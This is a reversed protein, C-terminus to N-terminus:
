PINVIRTFSLSPYRYFKYFDLNFVTRCDLAKLSSKSHSVNQFHKQFSFTVAFTLPKRLIPDSIISFTDHIIKGQM